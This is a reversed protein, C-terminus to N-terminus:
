ILWTTDILWTVREFSDYTIHILWTLRICLRTRDNLWTVRKFSDHQILSDRWVNLHTMNHPHTVDCTHILRAVSSSAADRERQSVSLKERDWTCVRLALLQVQGNHIGWFISECESALFYYVRTFCFTNPCVRIKLRVSICSQTSPQTNDHLLWTVYTKLPSLRTMGHVANFFNSSNTQPRTHIRDYLDCISRPPILSDHWVYECIVTFFGVFKDTPWYIKM